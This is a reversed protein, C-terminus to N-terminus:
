STYDFSLYKHGWSNLVFVLFYRIFVYYLICWDHPIRISGYWGAKSYYVNQTDVCLMWGVNSWWTRGISWLTEVLEQHPDITLQKGLHLIEERKNRYKLCFKSLNSFLSSKSICVIEFVPTKIKSLTQTQLHGLTLLLFKDFNLRLCFLIVNTM